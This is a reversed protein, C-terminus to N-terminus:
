QKYLSKSDSDHVVQFNKVSAQTVRGHFNLVYSETEENWVPTKNHLVILNNLNRTKWSELLTEHVGNPVIRVREQSQTMGPLVVTM